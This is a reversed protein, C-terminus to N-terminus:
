RRRLSWVGVGLFAILMPIGAVTLLVIENMQADSLNLTFTRAPKPAIALLQERDALWNVSLLAFDIDPPSESLSETRLFDANGLIIMRSSSHLQVRADKIAGKEIAVGFYLPPPLDIGQAYTITQRSFLAEDKDGWYDPAAPTLAKTMTLGEQTIKAEDTSLSCTGGPFFGTAQSLARLFATEPLFQAYVDLTVSQEEIGTKFQTVILDPDPRIGFEALFQVLNPTKVKPDLLILMRGQENWYNRLLSVDRQGLDYKPGALVLAAFDTPVRALNALVLPELKINQRQVYEQFRALPSGNGLGPEGHGTIFGIKTEKNEALEILASTIVQEGRFARVQPTESFMGPPDYEAMEAVRLIRKRNEYDLIVLNEAAAFNYKLQLERTRTLNRYPDINEVQVKRRGAFEYEKLLNQLDYYLESGASQSTPSFFVYIKVEKKLSRLFKKTLESLAYKNSRSLDWRKYRNFGIYNIMLVIVGVIITQFLVNAGIRWRKLGAPKSPPHSM